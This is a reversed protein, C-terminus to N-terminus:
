PGSSTKTARLERQLLRRTAGWAPADSDVRVLSGAGRATAQLRVTGCRRGRQVRAELSGDEGDYRTIRGGLARLVAMAHSLAENPAAPTILSAV